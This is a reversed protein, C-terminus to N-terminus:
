SSYRTRTDNQAMVGHSGIKGPLGRGQRGRRSSRPESGGRHGGLGWRLDGELRVKSVIDLVPKSSDGGPVDWGRGRGVLGWGPNPSRGELQGKMGGLNGQSMPTVPLGPFHSLTM